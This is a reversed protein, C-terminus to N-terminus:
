WGKQQSKSAAPITANNTRPRLYRVGLVMVGSILAIGVAIYNGTFVKALLGVIGFVIFFPSTQTPLFGPM